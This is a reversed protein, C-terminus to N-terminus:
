SVSLYPIIRTCVEHKKRARPVKQGPIETSVHREAEGQGQGRRIRKRRQSTATAANVDDGKKAGMLARKDKIAGTRRMRREDGRDQSTQIAHFSFSFPQSKLNVASSFLTSCPSDQSTIFALIGPSINNSSEPAKLSKVSPRNSTREMRALVLSTRVSHPWLGANDQPNTKAVTRVPLFLDQFCGQKPM